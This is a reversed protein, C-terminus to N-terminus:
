LRCRLTLVDDAWRLRDHVDQLELIKDRLKQLEKRLAVERSSLIIKEFDKDAHDIFTLISERPLANELNAAATFVRHLDMKISDLVFKKNPELSQHADM